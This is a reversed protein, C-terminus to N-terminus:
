VINPVVIYLDQVHKSVIQELDPRKKYGLRNDIFLSVGGSAKNERCKHECSYETLGYLDCSTTKLCPECLGLVNIKLNLTKLYLTLENHHSIM